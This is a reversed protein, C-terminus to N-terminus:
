AKLLSYPMIGNAYTLEDEFWFWKSSKNSLYLKVLKNALNDIINMCAIKDHGEYINSLGLISYAQARYAKINDINPIARKVMIDSLEYIGKPLDPISYMYGLGWLSRGFSDESGEEEIFQRQYNMFNKWRGNNNQGYYLFSIYRIILPIFREDDSRNFLMSTIILARANDDTTYGNGFDPICFRCHQIMGTSDTLNFLHDLKLENSNVIM